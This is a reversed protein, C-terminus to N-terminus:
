SAAQTSTNKRSARSSILYRTLRARLFDRATAYLLIACILTCYILMMTNAPVVYTTGPVTGAVILMFLANITGTQILAIMIAATLLLRFIIHKM